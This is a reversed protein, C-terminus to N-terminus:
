PSTGLFRRFAMTEKATLQGLDKFIRAAKFYFQLAEIEDLDRLPNSNIPIAEMVGVSDEPTSNKKVILYHHQELWQYFNWASCNKCFNTKMLEYVHGRFAELKEHHGCCVDSCYTGSRYCTNM